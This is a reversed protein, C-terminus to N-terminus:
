SMPMSPATACSIESIPEITRIWLNSQLRYSLFGPRIARCNQASQPPKHSKVTRRPHAAGGGEINSFYWWGWGMSLPDELNIEPQTGVQQSTSLNPDVADTGAPIPDEVLVYHLDTPAIITLRVQVNDGVQASEVTEGDLVYRRSVIIGNDVPQVEPVPLYAKLFLRYYLSGTGESRDIDITNIQDRLLTAVDVILRESERADAPTVDVRTLREGNLAVGYSYSPQLDNSMVMYDTLAMVAWATEQTTEWADATRQTVLYRVINPIMDNTPNIRIFAALAIATTRTDTNWNWYDRQDETWHAGTASLTAGNLLDNLLTDARSDNAAGLEFTLALFARAYYDLRERVEFLNAARSLDPEGSVALAYLIFAQRNLQWTQSNISPTIFSGRLFLQARSIVDPSVNYGQNRAETLGILAYATTLPNSPDNVYWGWGGDTKQQAYLRQLAFNVAVDLNARLSPDDLGVSALARVTLINPLFRSVTQEICQYPFNELYDLADVTTSALSRDLEMTLLGDTIPYETPLVIGEQRTDAESIVGATGVTEPVEYQFVPILGDQALPAISADNYVGALDEAIFLLDIGVQGPEAQVSVPFDVRLRTGAPISVEQVGGADDTFTVGLQSALTVRVDLDSDTNNNVIAALTLTDGAVFFRPTVPRILLPKTSLLESTNQGVRLEGAGPLTVARADLRWTTLNDPLTIEVRAEGNADTMVSGNWYATDVFDERIDFIGGEGFGGGGGKVTDLVTQTLQDVNITLLSSTRVSLFQQGFFYSLLDIQNPPAISLSAVDTLAVGLETQVPAGTYDTTRLTFGVTDGPGAQEADPIIEVNLERRTTEVQLGIMGMRFAAVPNTEDVGKVIFVSVYVNPAYAPLIPLEYVFSNSELTIRDVFLTDGREVTVLAETTGQFPSAILIEATEGINYENKDSILDIRNSNQMRWVVYEGSSVWTTAASIVTRGAEDRATAKLKFIGGTPPTFAASARGDSDTTVTATAVPIEEVEYTWTTRGSADQEQVSMWRREVFELDIAQNAVSEGEWDVAILNFTNEEGATGVYEEPAVGIYVSGRHVVVQARGSVAQGSEDSVTAEITFELSQKSDGLDAPFEIVAQGQADAILEGSTILGGVSGFFDGPSGDADWDTFSYRGPGEYADFAFPNAIVNYEVTAGSVAGGFYYRSDVVATITEGAAVEASQPTVTVEFEPLRYEAVGFDVAGINVWYAEPDEGPLLADIRYYGLAADSDIDFQGNFTGAATLTLDTESVINNEPDFIRVPLTDFAPAGYTVDDKTRVVGRYYVPQGPRYIPRDTYVYARYREPQYEMSANFMYGEIGNSWEGSALGFYDGTSLVAIRQTYVENERRVVARLLGDADTNGSAIVSMDDDYVTVPANPIPQGSNVDTAWILVSDVTDKMTLNANGVILIHQRPYPVEPSSADLFYVGPALANGGEDTVDVPTTAAPISVDVYYETLDGEALWGTSGDNLQVQWWAFNGACTPGGIVSVTMGRTLNTLVQGTLPEARLRLPDPETIVEIVDGVHVRSPPAGACVENATIGLDLYEYRRANLPAVSPISWSKIRNQDTLSFNDGLSGAYRSDSTMVRVWDDVNLRYLSLDIQSVNRHTLFLRTAENGANYFGIDGTTELYLEPDYPATTYNIVTQQDITNGYIDRMGPLITIRYTTSPETPFSLTYSDDWESYYADYERWPEPEIIVKEKLSEIDMPSTFFITLGGWPYVEVDGNRPNTNLIAPHPVTRFLSETAGTLPAGGNIGTPLGNISTFQAAYVTDLALPGEPKFLFGASDEAWEFIGAVNAGGGQPRLRFSAEVSARDMPQNFRLQVGSNLRVREAGSSPVFEIVQPPSTKFTWTFPEALPAGDLATLSPDVTVSYNLGGGLAPEPRFVYISTNLWEGTGSVPPDSRLPDPLDRGADSTLGLPVVPRNFIVTVASDAAIDLSDPAPLVDAVRLEGEGQGAADFLGGLTLVFMTLFIFLVHIRPKRM